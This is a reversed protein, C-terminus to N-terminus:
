TVDMYVEKTVEKKANVRREAIYENCKTQVDLVAGHAWRSTRLTLRRGSPYRLLPGLRAPYYGNIAKREFM